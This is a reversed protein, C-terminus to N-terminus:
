KPKPKASSPSLSIYYFTKKGRCLPPTIIIDNKKEQLNKFTCLTPTYCPSKIRSCRLKDSEVGNNLLIFRSKFVFRIIVHKCRLDCRWLLITNNHMPVVTARTYYLLPAYM